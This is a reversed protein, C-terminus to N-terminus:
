FKFNSFNWTASNQGIGGYANFILNIGNNGTDYFKKHFDYKYNSTSILQSHYYVLGTPSYITGFTFDICLGAISPSLNLTYLTLVTNQMTWFIDKYGYNNPVTGQKNFDDDNYVKGNIKIDLYFYTRDNNGNVNTAENNLVLKLKYETADLPYYNPPFNDNLNNVTNITITSLVFSLIIIKKM